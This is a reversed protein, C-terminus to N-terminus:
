EKLCRVSFGFGKNHNFDLTKSNDFAIYHCWATHENQETASWWFGMFGANYDFGVDTRNGGPKADFPHVKGDDLDVLWGSASRMEDAAIHAGGLLESLHKWEDETPIRWGEPALGRPDNVAFWNYLRGYLAGNETDNKFYCCAPRGEQAAKEWEESKEIVPIPDGNRFTDVDLNSRMWEQDGIIFNTPEIVEPDIPEQPTNKSQSSSRFLKGLATESWKFKTGM